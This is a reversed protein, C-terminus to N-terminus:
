VPETGRNSWHLVRHESVTAGQFKAKWRKQFPSCCFCASYEMCLAHKADMFLQVWDRADWPLCLFIRALFEFFTGCTLSLCLTSCLGTTHSLIICSELNKLVTFSKGFHSNCNQFILPPNSALNGWQPIGVLSNSAWALTIWLAHEGAQRVERVDLYSWIQAIRFANPLGLTIKQTM